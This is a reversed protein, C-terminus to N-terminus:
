VSNQLILQRIVREILELPLPQNLPFRLNNKPGRYAQLADLLEPNDKIPPYIGIHGKFAEFYIFIKGRKFAPMRYSIMEEADPAVSLILAYISLLADKSAKAYNAIHDQILSM